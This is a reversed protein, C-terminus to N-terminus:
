TTSSSFTQFPSSLLTIYFSFFCVCISIPLKHVPTFKEHSQCTYVPHKRIELTEVWLQMIKQKKKFNQTFYNFTKKTNNKKFLLILLFFTNCQSPRVIQYVLHMKEGVIRYLQVYKDYRVSDSFFQRHVNLSFFLTFLPSTANHKANVNAEHQQACCHFM